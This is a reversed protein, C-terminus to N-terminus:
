SSQDPLRNLWGSVLAKVREGPTMILHKVEAPSLKGEDLLSHLKGSQDPSIGKLASISVLTAHAAKLKEEVSPETEPTIRLTDGNKRMTEGPVIKKARKRYSELILSFESSKLTTIVLGSPNRIGDRSKKVKEDVVWIACEVAEPSHMSALTEANKGTVGAEVLLRLSVTNLLNATQTFEISIQMDWGRGVSTYGTLYGANRLQEFLGGSDLLPKLLRSPEQRTGLLRCSEVLDRASLTIRPHIRNFDRADRRWAELLRYLGRTGPSNLLVLLEPNAALTLTGDISEVINPNMRIVYTTQNQQPNFPHAEVREAVEDILNMTRRDAVNMIPTRWNNWIRYRTNSLSDLANRVSAYVDTYQSMGGQRIIEATTMEVTMEGGQRAAVGATVVAAFVDNALGHPVVSQYTTECQIGAGNTETGVETTWGHQVSKPLRNQLSILGLHAVNYETLQHTPRKVEAARVM